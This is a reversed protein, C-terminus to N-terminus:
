ATRSSNACAARFCSSTSCAGAFEASHSHRARHRRSRGQGSRDDKAGRGGEPVDRADLLEDISAPEERKEVFGDGQRLATVEYANIRDVLRDFHDRLRADTRAGYPSELLVDVARDFEARARELHGVNLEREGTEFHAQSSAILSAIPDPPPPPPVPQPVPKVQEPVAAAQVKAKPNSGCGSTLLVAAAAAPWWARLTM